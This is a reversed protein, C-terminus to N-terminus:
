EVLKSILKIYIDMGERIESLHVYEDASHSRTSSGIGIKLSPMPMVAQDSTTPSGYTRRGLEIGAKVVPHEPDISSSRLRLSRPVVDCEVNARIIDLVEQHTYEDTIRVDVTFICEAPIVNHQSGANIITVSMMMEGLMQSVKDFKYTRFWEIDKMAKYIANVGEGRAAHGAVGRVTCDLVMLGREAIALDMGTPEGVIAFDIEGLDGLISEIGGLGSCEEEATVALCLNYKLNKKDYFYLFAAILAVVSAGADNSGLGYLVDGEIDPSFPDRSQNKNPKVTDIHSNLLITKKTPDFFKNRAWVNNGKRRFRVNREDLFNEIIEAVAAEDRSFSPTAIMNSLLAVVEDFM